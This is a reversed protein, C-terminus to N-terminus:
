LFSPVMKRVIEFKNKVPEMEYFTPKRKIKTFSKKVRLRDNKSTKLGYYVEKIEAYKSFNIFNDKYNIFYDFNILRTEEEYSWCSAKLSLYQMMTEMRIKLDLDSYPKPVFNDEYEVGFALFGDELLKMADVYFGICVGTHKDSYHSWMLFSKYTKSFCSIGFNNRHKKWEHQLYKIKVKESVTTVNRKESRTLNPPPNTEHKSFNILNEYLDFPDNFDKPNSFKFSQREILLLAGEIDIYKYFFIKGNEVFNLGQTYRKVEVHTLM